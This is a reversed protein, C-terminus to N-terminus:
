ESVSVGSHVVIVVFLHVDDVAVELGLVDEEAVGLDTRGRVNHLIRGMLGRGM